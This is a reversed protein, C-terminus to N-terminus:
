RKRIAEVQEDRPVYVDAEAPGSLRAREASSCRWRIPLSRTLGIWSQTREYSRRGAGTTEGAIANPRHDPVRDSRVVDDCSDASSVGLGDGPHAQRPPPDDAGADESHGAHALGGPIM